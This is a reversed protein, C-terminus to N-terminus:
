KTKKSKKVKSYSGYIFVGNVKKAGKVRVYYKKKKKLGKITIKTKKTYKTKLGKKFNKKLAVQVQYKKAGSAKYKITLKKKGATIKKIKGKGAGAAKNGATIKFDKVDIIGHMNNELSYEKLFPGMEFMFGMTPSSKKKQYDNKDSPILVTATVTAYDADKVLRVFNPYNPKTELVSKGACAAKVNSLPLAAGDTDLNDYMKFHIHKIANKGGTKETYSVEKGDIKTTKLVTLDNELTSKIKFSLNYYRGREVNVVKKATLGYPNSAIPKGDSTWGNASWGTSVVNFTFDSATQKTIKGCEGYTWKADLSGKAAVVKEYSSDICWQQAQGSGYKPKKKLEAEWTPDASNDGGDGGHISFGTWAKGASVDTGSNQAGVVGALGIVLTATLITAVLKKGIKKM